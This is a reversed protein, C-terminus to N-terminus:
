NSPAAVPDPVPLAQYERARGLVKEVYDDSRNYAFYAKRLGEDTDLAPASSCLLKGSALAADYINQPDAVKDGSEDEAWRKWTGPLFQMVGVARDLEPDLDLAGRDTDTIRRTGGTGDLPIGYVPVSATGDPAPQGGSSRGHNSESRGIGALAWWAIGCAPRTRRLDNAARWYADLAIFPLDSGAVVTMPRANRLEEEAGVISATAIEADSRARTLERTATATDDENAQLREEWGSLSAATRAQATQVSDAQREVTAEAEGALKTLHSQEMQEDLTRTPDLYGDDSASHVFRRVAIARLAVDVREATVELKRRRETTRGILEVLARRDVELQALRDENTAIRHNADALDRADAERQMAAGDYRESTVAVDDLAPSTAVIVGAPNRGDAALVEPDKSPTPRGPAPRTSAPKATTTPVAPDTPAAPDAAPTTTATPDTQAAVPALNLGGLLVGAAGITAATRLHRATGHQRFPRPMVTPPPTPPM